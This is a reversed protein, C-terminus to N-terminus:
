KEEGKIEMRREKNTSGLSAFERRQYVGFPSEMSNDVVKTTREKWLSRLM